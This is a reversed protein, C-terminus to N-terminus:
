GPRTFHPDIYDNDILLIILGIFYWLLIRISQEAANLRYQIHYGTHAAATYFDRRMKSYVPYVAIVFYPTYQFPRMFLFDRGLAHPAIQIRRWAPPRLSIIPSWSICYVFPKRATM